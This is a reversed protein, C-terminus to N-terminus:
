LAPFLTLQPVTARVFVTEGTAFIHSSPMVSIVQENNDLRLVYHTTAGRFVRRTVVARAGETKDVIINDPRLLVKVKQGHRILPYDKQSHEGLRGLQNEIGGDATVEASLLFGEGVFEAVFTCNPRHYLNEIKDWQCIAGENIVGGSDAILFAENQNHTVVLTTQQKSKLIDRLQRSIKEHLSADLRSLPEDLLLLDPQTALARALAVRQQQGGSVEHPYAQALQAIDCLDMVEQVAYDAQEPTTEHLGFAVNDYVNLHPFLAFDQFVMGIRRQEPPCTTLKNSLLRNNLSISGNTISELGAICLLVTSKGSGSPGMLCGVEGEQLAFGITNLVPKKDYVHCIGDVSLYTM